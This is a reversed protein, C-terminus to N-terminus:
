KARGKPRDLTPHPFLGGWPRYMMPDRKEGKAKPPERPPEPEPFLAKRCVQVPDILLTMRASM